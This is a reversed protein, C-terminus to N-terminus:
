RPIIWLMLSTNLRETQQLAIVPLYGQVFHIKVGKGRILLYNNEQAPQHSNM